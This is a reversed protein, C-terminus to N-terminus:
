EAFVLFIPCVFILTGSLSLMSIKINNWYERKKGVELIEWVNYGLQESINDFMKNVLYLPIGVGVIIAILAILITRFFGQVFEDLIPYLLISGISGYCMCNVVLKEMFSNLMEVADHQALHQRGCNKCGWWTKSSSNVKSGTGCLGCLLGFPGLLCMGCCGAGWGYGKTKVDVESKVIPFTDESSCYPCLPDKPMNPIKSIWKDISDFIHIGAEKLLEMLGKLFELFSYLISEKAEGNQFSNENEITKKVDVKNGCHPCYKSEPDLKGGCERCYKM